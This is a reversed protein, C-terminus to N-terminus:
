PKGRDKGFVNCGTMTSRDSVLAARLRPFSHRAGILVISPKNPPIGLGVRAIPTVSNASRM